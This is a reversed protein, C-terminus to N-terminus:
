EKPDDKNSAARRAKAKAVASAIKAAKEADQPPKKVSDDGTNALQERQAKKAKARAVAAAVRDQKNDTATTDSTTASAQEEIKTQHPDVETQQAKKKAKARALAAAIKDQADGNNAMKAKRAEAAKRHKEEREQQERLLRIKRAEFREKANDSQQKEAERARIEAKAKRYDHVLPIKSPCVFACAGCEICDALHYEDLKDFDGARAYWYLQQPLLGAPCVDACAGCRICAQQKSDQNLENSTPVLLCNTSKIVPVETSGLTFGMMPGGMIVTQNLQTDAQYCSLNLLHSIPTGIPVWFNGPQQLAGGTLTVVREILPKGHIIAQAIAFCTGVNQMTVGVDMPLGQSPVERNTLIQILQKEGGSPYKTPVSIVRISQKQRVAERMAALAEPKNDEIAILTYQPTLIHCLIEVGQVIQEAHERMLRDDSTIYPECEVGNVILLEPAQESGAKIHTPFGAGGMGTIGANCIAELLEVRPTQRFNEISKLNVWNEQGDASIQVTLQPIASPHASIHPAIKSVTGSTPAHVPVAFPHSSHTLAQGKRVYEGQNVQLQGEIGIHQNIPVYYTEALPLQQIPNQNSLQKFGSPHIGGPFHWLRNQELRSLITNLDPQLTHSDTM